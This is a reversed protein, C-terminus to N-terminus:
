DEQFIRLAKHIGEEDLDKWVRLGVDGVGNM